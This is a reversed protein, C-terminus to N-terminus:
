ITAALTQHAVFALRARVVGETMWNRGLGRWLPSLSELREPPIGTSTVANRVEQEDRRGLVFQAWECAPSPREAEFAARLLPQTVFAQARALVEAAAAAAREPGSLADVLAGVGEPSLARSLAVIAHIVVDDSEHSIFPVIGASCPRRGCGLGWVCAAVVEDLPDGAAIASLDETAWQAGIESLILVVEMRWAPDDVAADYAGRLLTRGRPEGHKALAAAAELAVRREPDTGAVEALRETIGPADAHGLAKAACYREIASESRLAAAPDWAVIPRCQPDLASDLAGALIAEGAKFATGPVCYAVKGKLAYTYSRGDAYRVRISAASVEVVTGDKQPVWSPWTRDREAGESASKPPGLKSVGGAARMSAVGFFCASSAPVVAGDAERCAVFAVIDQDRLGVDWRRDPNDPSDSMKVELDSKARVEFRIGCRVCLLDPVRLRKIKTTWIKNSTSYRELEIVQHRVHVLQDRVASTGVAGMTLFRLFSENVKFAM